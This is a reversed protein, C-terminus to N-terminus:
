EVVPTPAEGEHFTLEYSGHSENMFSSIKLTPNKLDKDLSCELLTLEYDGGGSNGMPGHTMHIITKLSEAAKYHDDELVFPINEFIANGWVSSTFVIKAKRTDESLNITVVTIEGDALYDKFFGIEGNPKIHTGTTYGNFIKSSNSAKPSSSDDKQETNPKPDDDDDGCSAVFGASCVLALALLFTKKNM